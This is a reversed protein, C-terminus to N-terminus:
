KWYNGWLWTILSWREGSTVKNVSHPFFSPFAIISGQEVKIDKGFINIEGGSYSNEKSLFLVITLKRDVDESLSGYNDFHISFYDESQYRKIEYPEAFSVDFKFFNNIETYIEQLNAHIAHDLPLLRSSFSTTFFDPYKDEGENLLEINSNILEECIDSILVGEKLFIKKTLDLNIEPKPLNPIM